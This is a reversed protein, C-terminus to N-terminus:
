VGRDGIGWDAPHLRGGYDKCELVVRGGGTCRVGGVDGRDKTGTRARREVRDDGLVRALYGAM